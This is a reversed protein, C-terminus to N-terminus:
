SINKKRDANESDNYYKIISLLGRRIVIGFSSSIIKMGAVDIETNSKREELFALSMRSHAKLVYM